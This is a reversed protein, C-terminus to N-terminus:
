KIYKEYQDIRRDWNNDKAYSRSCISYSGYDKFINKLSDVVEKYNNPNVLLGNYLNKIADQLGSNKAGIAPVGYLNGELVSIGFGEFDTRNNHNSLLMNVHAINYLKELESHELFGHITVFDNLNLENILRILDKKDGCNGVCHYHVKPFEKIINPLATIVNYQGKRLSISGVTILIPYNDLAYTESINKWKDKDVGNNIVSTKLKLKEPILSKTFNSVSIISDSKKLCYLTWKLAFNKGLETGHIVTVININRYFKILPITWISFEGSIIVNTIEYKIITERITKLRHIWTLLLRKKRKFRFTKFSCTLDFSIEQHRNVYDSKTNIIISYGRRSLENAMNYAHNGIGGPGPPFESSVILIKNKMQFKIGMM